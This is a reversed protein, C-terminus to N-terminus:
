NATEVCVCVCVCVNKCKDKLHGIEGCKECLRKKFTCERMMHGFALCRHCRMVNVFDGVKCVKWKVYARRKSMLIDHMSRSLEVVVNGVNVSKRNMRSVVRVKQRFENESVKMRRLNREYLESMLSESTMENEVDFIVVKPGIKRPSEVKLGLDDFKKCERLVRVEAENATEVALGGSKTKRVANVRINMADSVGNMVREKIQESTLSSEDEKAKIVVAYIKGKM